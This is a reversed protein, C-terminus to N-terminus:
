IFIYILLCVDAYIISVDLSYMFVLTSMVSMVCVELRAQDLRVQYGLPLMLPTPYPCQSGHPSYTRILARWSSQRCVASSAWCASVTSYPTSMEKCSAYSSVCEFMVYRDIVYM